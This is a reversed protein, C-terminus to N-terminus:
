ANPLFKRLVMGSHVCDLWDPHLFVCFAMYLQGSFELSFRTGSCVQVKFGDSGVINFTEGFKKEKSWFATKPLIELLSRNLGWFKGSLLCSLCDALTYSQFSQLGPRTYTLCFSLWDTLWNTWCHACCIIQLDALQDTRYLTPQM